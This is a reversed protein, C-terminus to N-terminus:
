EGKLDAYSKKICNIGPKVETGKVIPRTALYVVDHLVFYTGKSYNEKATMSTLEAIKERMEQVTMRQDPEPEPEPAPEPEPEPDPVPIPKGDMLEEYIDNFETQQIM